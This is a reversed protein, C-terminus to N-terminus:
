GLVAVLEGVVRLSSLVDETLVIDEYNTFFSNPRLVIKSHRWGDDTEIKASQYQKVTYQGGMDPDQISHHEVLVVKGERTGGTDHKFLCWSGNPIRKNMSEGIVQCLFYGEKVQYPEPLVAWEYDEPNQFDSFGGAAAKLHLVPISNVYPEVENYELVEFPYQQEQQVIDEDGQTLFSRFYNRTEADVSYVYCGKQGRTMLTKYTNKIIAEVKKTAAEPDSKFLKKYGSISKDTKARCEPNVQIIGNRVVLDDGLIVGIYDLELGQCTHICGAESVSDEKLIWLMGHDNLNWRMKFDFEPITIDFAEKEKKSIWNWCYGAVIRASNGGLNKEEILQRMENPNDFVRFDYSENDLEFNATERIDLLNDLWATYATSGNCRFQSALKFQSIEAGSKNAWAEIEAKHGIDKFTVVQDDDVFFVSVKSTAIIEKVQNEGLHSFMGSKANLRHAEDVLLVDFVNEELSHYGGSGKFLNNYHNKKMSGTLKAAYVQRPASNKTVYQAVKELRTIEVLLNIAVVTKGTGPGGEVIFVRKPADERDTGRVAELVSEYIVKQDDIMMFEPKGALMNVLADALRKSPKIKGSEIHYMVQNADGFVVNQKIFQRLKFADEKLFVPAKSTYGDYRSDRIEKDSDLNHLYACPNLKITGDHLASNYDQILASYTWAQYSPHEVDRVKGGLYTQVIADKNTTKVADWQKLEIIVVSDRKEKDRGAVIFDIRKSSQPIGYEIAVTSDGPIEDDAMVRDMYQLSNHWSRVENDSVRRHTKQYM